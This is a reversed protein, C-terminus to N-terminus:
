WPKQQKHIRHKQRMTGPLPCLFCSEPQGAASRQGTSGAKVTAMPQGVAPQSQGTSSAKVTAMPQGVSPLRQGTSDTKVTDFPQGTTKKSKKPGKRDLTSM